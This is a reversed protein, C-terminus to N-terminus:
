FSSGSRPELPPTGPHVASPRNGSPMEVLNRGHKKASYLAQDAAEILEGASMGPVLGSIGFSATVAFVASQNGGFALTELRARVRELCDAAQAVSGSPFLVYFEDGGIRGALDSSRIWERLMSSFTILVDDGARHGHSDNIVKFRDIDCIGLSLPRGLARAQVIEEDLRSFFYRRNALGTLADSSAQHFLQEEARKRDSVDAHAGIMRVPRGEEDWIAKGRALVWKWTGDKCRIRYEAQYSHSHKRLHRDVAAKAHPLDDPHVLHEWVEPQNPLEWDQYGLMQKWHASYFVTNNRADWDWLGDNTGELALQWREESIRSIEEAQKEKTIDEVLKVLQVAAGHANRAVGINERVWVSTGNKRVYRKDFRIRSGSNDLAEKQWQRDTERDDPHTIASSYLPTLEDRAYGTIECFADNVQLITGELDTLAMGIAAHVFASRFREESVRLAEEARERDTIDIAVGGVFRRGGETFPFKASLWKIPTGDSAPVTEVVEICRNEQLIRLDNRRVEQATEQPWLEFDDKGLVASVPQQFAETFRKSMYLLRGAEDKIFGLFPSNDMFAQFRVESDQVALLAREAIRKSRRAKAVQWALALAAAAFFLFGYLTVKSATEAERLQFYSRTQSASFGSWRDVAAAFTGDTALLSIAERLDDVTSAFERRAAISVPSTASPVLQVRLAVNSCGAPRDLLVADLTRADLFSADVTGACVATIAALNGPTAVRAAKPFLQKALSTIRPSATVGLQLGDLGGRLVTTKRSLLCYSSELWPKSFHFLRDREPTRSVAPWADVIGQALAEDPKLGTIPVWILHINKHRAADNLIDVALGTVSGDKQIVHFPPADDAGVRLQRPPPQSPWLSACLVSLCVV